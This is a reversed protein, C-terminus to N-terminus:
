LAEGEASGSIGKSMLIGPLPHVNVAAEPVQAQVGCACVFTRLGVLMSCPALSAVSARSAACPKSSM